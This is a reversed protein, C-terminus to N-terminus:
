APSADGGSEATGADESKSGERRAAASRHVYDLLEPEMRYLGLRDYTITVVFGALLWFVLGIATMVIGRELGADGVANFYLIARVAGLIQRMPEFNAVFRYVGSLAQLPITGGSTALALYVFLLLGILQGLSGLAAFLVLTGLAIVASAFWAFLWLEAVHPADMRLIGAAVLLVLGSLVASAVVAVAWKVLLTQWRSIREPLRHRLRTGVETTTYGLAADVGSNIITASLFGAMTVLLAIYFASLGVGAHDPLPRYSVSSVSVPDSLLAEPTTAGTHRAEALLDEGFRKSVSELAPQLVGTALSVGLTGARSNTLLEISPLPSDTPRASAPEALASLSSSFDAPVVVVAYAAGKNMENEAAAMSLVMVDLRDSVAPTRTLAKVVEDGFNTSGSATTAGTDENVVVVPLGHLHATPDVISGFYILTILSILVAGVVLPFIWVAPARLVRGARVEPVSEAGHQDAM